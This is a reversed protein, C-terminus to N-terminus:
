QVFATPNHNESESDVLFTAFYWSDKNSTQSAQLGDHM